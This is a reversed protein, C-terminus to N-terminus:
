AEAAGNLTALHRKALQCYRETQFRIKEVQAESQEKLFKAPRGIWIQRPPIQKGPSLLAGAGLMAGQGIRCDDMAVAGMGVFARDELTCGHVVAMHGIVCDEGIITPCGETDPRPGEVHFVSGDQVNSRAGVEIRHIDGRLVCNYWVSAEPGITVDGIIRAGPAIFATEHIQPVKGEFPLITAWPFRENM